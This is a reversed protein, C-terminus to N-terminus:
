FTIPVTPIQCIHYTNINKSADVYPAELFRSFSFILHLYIGIHTLTRPQLGAATQTALCLLFKHDCNQHNSTWFCPTLLATNERFSRPSLDQRKKAEPPWDVRTRPMCNWHTQQRTVKGGTFTQKQTEGKRIPVGAMNFKPDKRVWYLRMKTIDIFVRNEFLTM